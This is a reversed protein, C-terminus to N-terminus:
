LPNPNSYNRLLIVQNSLTRANFEDILIINGENRPSSIDNELGNYPFNKDINTKKYFNSTIPFFLMNNHLIKLM